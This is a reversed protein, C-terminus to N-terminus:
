RLLGALTRSCSDQPARWLLIGSFRRLLVGSVEGRYVAQILRLVGYPLSGCVFRGSRALAVVMPTQWRLVELCQRLLRRLSNTEGFVIFKAVAFYKSSQFLFVVQFEGCCFGQLEGCYLGQSKAAVADMSHALM